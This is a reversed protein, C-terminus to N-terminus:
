YLAMSTEFFLVYEIILVNVAVDLKFNLSTNMGIINNGCSCSVTNIRILMTAYLSADTCDNNNM